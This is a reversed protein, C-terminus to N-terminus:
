RADEADSKRIKTIQARARSLVTRMTGPAVGLRKAMEEPPVGEAQMRLVKQYRPTVRALQSLMVAFDERAEAVAEAEQYAPAAQEPLEEPAYPAERSSSELVDLARNRVARAIYADLTEVRLEDWRPVLKAFVDNVVSQAEQTDLGFRLRVSRVLGHFREAYYDQLSPRPM